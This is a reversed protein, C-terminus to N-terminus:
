FIDKTRRWPVHEYVPQVMDAHLSRSTLGPAYVINGHISDPSPAALKLVCSNPSQMLVLLAPAVALQM